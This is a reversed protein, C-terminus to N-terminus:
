SGSKLSYRRDIAREARASRYEGLFSAGSAVFFTFRFGIVLGRKAGSTSSAASTSESEPSSSMSRMAAICCDRSSVSSVLRCLAISSDVAAEKEARGACDCAEEEREM